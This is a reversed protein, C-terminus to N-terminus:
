MGWCCICSIKANILQFNLPQLVTFTGSSNVSYTYKMTENM